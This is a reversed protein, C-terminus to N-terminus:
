RRGEVFSKVSRLVQRGLFYSGIAPNAIRSAIRQSLYYADIRPLEFHNSRDTVYGLRTGVAAAYFRDVRQRLRENTAGYPFAFTPVAAGTRRGIEDLSGELDEDLARDDLATLRAHTRSHSGLEWGSAVLSSIGEWDLLASTQVNGPQGPWRNDKGVHDSVVYLTATFGHDELIPRAALVSEYGDDFTIAIPRSPLSAGNGAVLRSISVSELGARAFAELQDRLASISTWLPSPGDGIAHYTIIPVRM